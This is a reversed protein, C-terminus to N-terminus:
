RRWHATALSRIRAATRELPLNSAEDREPALRAGPVAVLGDAPHRAETLNSTAYVTQRVVISRTPWSTAAGASIAPDRRTARMGRWGPRLGTTWAQDM